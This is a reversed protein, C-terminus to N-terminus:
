GKEIILGVVAGIGAIMWWSMETDDAPPPLTGFLNNFFNQNNAQTQTIMANTISQVTANAAAGSAPVVPIAQGNVTSAVVAPMPTSLYTNGYVLWNEINGWLQALYSANPDGTVNVM